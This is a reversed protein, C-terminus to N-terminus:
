EDEAVDDLDVTNMTALKFAAVLGRKAVKSAVARVTAMRERFQNGSKIVEVQLEDIAAVMPILPDSVYDEKWANFYVSIVDEKKLSARLM